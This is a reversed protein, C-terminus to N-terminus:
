RLSQQATTPRDFFKGNSNPKSISTAHGGHHQDRDFMKSQSEGPIQRLNRLSHKKSNNDGGFKLPNRGNFHMGDVQSSANTRNCSLNYSHKFPQKDRTSIKGVSRGGMSQTGVGATDKGSKSTVSLKGKISNQQIEIYVQKHIWIYGNSNRELKGDEVLQTIALLFTWYNVSPVDILNDVFFRWIEKRSAGKNLSIKGIALTLMELYHQKIMPDMQKQPLNIRHHFSSM